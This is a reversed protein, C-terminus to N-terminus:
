TKRIAEGNRDLRGLIESPGLKGAVAYRFERDRDLLDLPQDKLFSSSRPM